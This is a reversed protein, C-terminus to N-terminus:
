APGTRSGRDGASPNWPPGRPLPAPRHPPRGPRPGSAALPLAPTFADPATAVSAEPLALPGPADAPARVVPLRAGNGLALVHSDSPDSRAEWGIDSAAGSLLAALLCGLLLRLSRSPPPDDM